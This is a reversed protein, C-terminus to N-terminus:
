RRHKRSQEVMQPYASGKYPRRASAIMSRPATPAYIAPKAVEEVKTKKKKKPATRPKENRVREAWGQGVRSIRALLEGELRTSDSNKVHMLRKHDMIARIRARRIPLEKKEEVDPEIFNADYHQRIAPDSIISYAKHINSWVVNYARRSRTDGNRLWDKVRSTNPASDASKHQYASQISQPKLNEKKQLGLDKYYNHKYDIKIGLYTGYTAAFSPPSVRPNTYTDCQAKSSAPVEEKREILINQQGESTDTVETSGDISAAHYNSRDGERLITKSIKIRPHNGAIIKDKFDVIREYEAM